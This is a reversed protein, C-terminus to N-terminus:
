IPFDGECGIFNDIECADNKAHKRRTTGQTAWLISLLWSCCGRHYQRVHSLDRVTHSPYFAFLFFIALKVFSNNQWFVNKKKADFKKM